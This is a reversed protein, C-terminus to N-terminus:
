RRVDSFDKMIDNVEAACKQTVKALREKELDAASKEPKAPAPAEVVSTLVLIEKVKSNVMERTSDEVEGDLIDNIQEAIDLVSMTKQQQVPSVAKEAVGNNKPTEKKEAKEAKAVPKKVDEPKAPVATSAANGNIHKAVLQELVPTSLQTMNKGDIIFKSKESPNKIVYDKITAMLIKRDIGSKTKIPMLYLTFDGEPVIARDSELTLRTEGIVAKMNNYSVSFERLESKVGEWDNAQSTVEVANKGLTSYVTIIRSM